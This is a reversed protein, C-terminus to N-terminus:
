FGTIRIETRRNQQHEEETCNVGNACRNKLKSEGYGKATIRNINIGKQVIFDVASQARKQSLTQNSVDSGRSDTHSGLEVKITPNDDLFQVVKELEIAADTRINWKALDYYINPIEIIAGVELKQVAVEVFENINVYGPKRDKTSYYVRKTLFAPKSFVVQYDSNPELKMRFDEAGQTTIESYITKSSSYVRVKVSPVIEKTGKIYVNGFIGHAEVKTLLVPIHITEGDSALLQPNIQTTKLLYGNCKTNLIYKQNAEIPFFFENSNKTDSSQLTVKQDTLLEVHVNLLKEGTLSDVVTGDMNFGFSIPDTVIISYIDDDGKGGERNSAFLGTKSDKRLFLGFDDASSNIPYGMNKVAYAGDKNKRSIFLDLGGVGQRGNSAFYFYGNSHIFPFMEDGETNITIGLNVPVSWGSDTRTVYYIDTGGYGGPMNSAFYLTKGDPSLSPHGSSYDNNDFPLEKLSTWTGLVTKRAYLIKLNNIGEKGKRPFYHRYNNRTVFMEDGQVNFCVPGDNYLTNYKRSFLKANVVTADESKVRYISFYPTKKWGDEFRIIAQNSRSSAFLIDGDYEIAGFDSNESNFPALKITYLEKEIMKKVFPASGRQLPVRSDSTNEKAYKEMWVDAEEYKQNYKLSQIYFYLDSTLYHGNDILNRFLSESKKTEDIKYYSLALNRNLSDTHYGKNILKEYAQIADTYAMNKFNRNAKMERNKFHLSDKTSFSQSNVSEYFFGILIFYFLITRNM